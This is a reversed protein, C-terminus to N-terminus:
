FRVRVGLQMQRASTVTNRIRGFSGLPAEGDAAGAFATLNPVGFNARNFLNFIEVRLELRSRSSGLPAEKAFALDVVRLDPGDFDGRGTNGFTGAPQLVFAQPNFWQTPDGQVANSADFGPAYSPRDRGIGPGLSPQWQSRSRNNQVFVTLPYGSRYQAIASVRWDALLAGAVGSLDRGWPIEWTTNAVVNHRVNFDSPGRNYDPIFEPFASTTGNTADSFFTSAQTTDESDSWTYSGEFSWGAALRRRVDVIFATYWSDGDSTKAEITTWATNLRTGGVPFFPAGDAGVTPVATNLDNSRLLNLGRSGAYGLTVATEAGVERQVNVNWVHISPTVVDWQVPRISLGSTREFPPNPFTPAQYVVRPTDPPNTVTVILNQSSNTAYYLGYGGRVATKGDGTADWSFGFRPSFNNYDAGEYLQGTTATRDTLTVLASDHGGQDVPMSMFEYRLGATISLRPHAQFEDQLYGGAIWFPWDRTFEAAPTLGIFSTARNEIFARLNAFSYTGLSFTPNVMDQQYHEALGGASFLHHGRTWVLDAQLSTVQQKFRVDVSSQTGFRQLGGVDINGILERGPVFPPLATDAEVAQGVRTRSYGFRYTGLLSSTYTQKLEATAYQNRSQFARPFQPYDLPLRQDADDLTYRIFFQSTPSLNADIRGQFFDQNLRQDFQFSHLATGDGLSAGNPMPYENLYPAVAPVVGVNLFQGPNAPDPLLGRRANADPVSSTITRGLSERLGEYGGFYFLRDRKFAGGITAGFQNRTFPPKGTTDFYNRADLADNRHFEYASGRVTNAGSKTIVNIQGGSMRGFEAGYANTEVRFEQITETGLATGAASGAPGNTMDNLLTGDLLYVNARPDQGNVSMGLGHAVVSGGDRHPYPTVGPQLFALDTFNRGNLPLQEIAREDVLYSLEGSRTNVTSTAATVNVTETLAGVALEFDVSVAEGVTLLVGQRLVPKFGALEARIDYTGVPLAALVFRGDPGTVTFREIARDVHRATITAGPISARSADFVRGSLTASTQAEATSAGFSVLFLLAAVFRV